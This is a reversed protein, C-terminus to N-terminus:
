RGNRPMEVGIDRKGFRAEDDTLNRKGMRMMDGNFASSYGRKGFRLDDNFALNRKGMRMMDGNFSSYERKGFRLDDNFALDRKGMRMMSATQRKNLLMRYIRNAAQADETNDNDDTPADEPTTTTTTSRKGMRMM